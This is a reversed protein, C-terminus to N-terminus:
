KGTRSFFGLPGEEVVNELTLTLLATQLEGLPLGSLAELDDIHRPRPGLASVVAIEATTLGPRPPKPAELALSLQPRGEGIGEARLLKPISTFPRAGRALEGLSGEFGAAAWPAQPVVWLTRGLRRAWSAANLAGSRKGAQVVVVAASLAVLVGNRRLFGATRPGRDDPFPWVMAGRSTAIREYLEAHEAPFVHSRGTGVVALTIGDASLAGEHAARDIGVAGGSVVVGGAAAVARGLEFALERAEPAPERTGVIAVAPLGVPLARSLTLDPPTVLAKLSAPYSPDHPSLRVM